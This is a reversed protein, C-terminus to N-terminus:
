KKGKKSIAKKRSKISGKAPKKILKEQTKKARSNEKKQLKKEKIFGMVTDYIIWGFVIMLIVFLWYSILESWNIFPKEETLGNGERPGLTVAGDNNKQKKEPLKIVNVKEKAATLKVPTTNKNITPTFSKPGEGAPKPNIIVPNAEASKSEPLTPTSRVSELPAAPPVVPPAVPTPAVAPNKPPAPAISIPTPPLPELPPRPAANKENIEQPTQPVIVTGASGKGLSRGGRCSSCLLVIIIIVSVWLWIPILKLKREM